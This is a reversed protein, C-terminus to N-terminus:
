KRRITFAQADDTWELRSAYIRQMVGLFGGEAPDHIKKPVPTKSAIVRITEASVDTKDDPMQATLHVKTEGPYKWTQGAKVKIESFAENPVILATEGDMGVDYIYLYCDRNVTVELSAENGQVFNTQSIGLEAQFEKDGSSASEVLCSRLQVYFRCDRCAGPISRFEDSIVQEKLIHANRTTLLMREVLNKQDRLTEQSFDLSRSRVEVGSFDQLAMKRAEAVASARAPRPQRGQGGDGYGREVWTCGAADKNLIKVVPLPTRPWAWLRPEGRRRPPVRKPRRAPEPVAQPATKVESRGGCGAAAALLLPGLSSRSLNKMALGFGGACQAPFGLQSKDVTCEYGEMRAVLGGDADLFDIDARVLNEM